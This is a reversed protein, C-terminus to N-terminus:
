YIEEPPTEPPAETQEGPTRLDAEDFTQETHCVVCTAARKGDVTEDFAWTHRDGCYQSDTIGAAAGVLSTRERLRAIVKSPGPCTNSGVYFLERVVEAAMAGPYVSFESYLAAEQGQWGKHLTGWRSELYGLMDAFEQGTM